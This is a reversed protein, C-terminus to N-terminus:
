TAAQSGPVLGEPVVLGIGKWDLVWIRRFPGFGRRAFLSLFAQRYTRDGGSAWAGFHALLECPADCQYTRDLKSELATLPAGPQFYGRISFNVADIDNLRGAHRVSAVVAGVADSFARYEDAPPMAVLEALLTPLIRRIAALSASYRFSFSLPANVFRADFAARSSPSLADYAAIIAAHHRRAAPMFGANRPNCIEVLEFAVASGDQFRCRIDPEPPPRKEISGPIVPLDAAVIFRQFAELESEAHHTM